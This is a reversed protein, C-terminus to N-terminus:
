WRRCTPGSRSRRAWDSPPAAVVCDAGAATVVAMARETVDVPTHRTADSFVGVALDGLQAALARAADVQQPTSLVLARSCGLARIEDGIVALTGFGFTVKAPLATYTFPQM